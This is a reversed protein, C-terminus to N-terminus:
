LLTGQEKKFWPLQRSQDLKFSEECTPCILHDSNVRAFHPNGGYQSQRALRPCLFAKHLETYTDSYNLRHMVKKISEEIMKLIDVCNSPQGTYYIRMQCTDEVLLIWEAQEKNFFSIANRRQKFRYHNNVSPQLELGNSLLDNVLAPFVGYFFPKGNCWTLVIPDVNKMYHGEEDQTFPLWPLVCPMFYVNDSDNTLSVKSIIYLHELLALFDKHSIGAVDDCNELLEWLAEIVSSYLYGQKLSELDKCFQSLRLMLNQPLVGSDIFTLSVLKSVMALLSNPRVFIIDPCISFYLFIGLADLHNIAEEVAAENMGLMAGIELCKQKSLMHRKDKDAEKSVELEFIFSRIPLEVKEFAGRPLKIAKCLEASINERGEDVSVLTNVPHIITNGEAPICLDRYAGLAEALRENKEELTEQCEKAKDWFTGVVLLRPKSVKFPDHRKPELSSLSRAFSIIVDLNSLNQKQSKISKGDIVYDVCPMDDLRDTLRDFLLIYLLLLMCSLKGCHSLTSQTVACSPLPLTRFHQKGGPILASFGILMLFRRLHNKLQCSHFCKRLLTLGSAKTLM